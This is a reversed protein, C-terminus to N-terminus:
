SNHPSISFQTMILHPKCFFCICSSTSTSKKVVYSKLAYWLAISSAFLDTHSLLCSAHLKLYDLSQWCSCHVNLFFCKDVLINMLVIELLVAYYCLLCFKSCLESVGLLWLCTTNVTHLVRSCLYFIFSNWYQLPQSKTYALIIVSIRSNDLYVIWDPM